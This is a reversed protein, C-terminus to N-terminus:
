SVIKREKKREHQLSLKEVYESVSRCREESWEHYEDCCDDLHCSKGRCAVCLRHPDHEKLPLLITWM